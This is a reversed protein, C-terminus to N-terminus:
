AEAPESVPNKTLEEIRKQLMWALDPEGGISRRPLLDLVVCLADWAQAKPILSDIQARMNRIESQCRKMMEIAENDNM